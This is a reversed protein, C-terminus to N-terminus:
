FSQVCQTFATFAGISLQGSLVQHMGVALVAVDRLKSLLLQTFIVATQTHVTVLVVRLFRRIASRFLGAERLEATNAHVTCRPHSFCPSNQFLCVPVM